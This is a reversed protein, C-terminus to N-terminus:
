IDAREEVKKENILNLEEDFLLVDFFKMKLKKIDDATLDSFYDSLFIVVSKKAVNRDVEKLLREVVQKHSTGGRGPIEALARKAKEIDNSDIEIIKQIEFDHIIVEVKAQFEKLISLIEIVFQRLTESSISGSSDIVVFARLKDKKKYKGPYLVRFDYMASKKRHIRTYTVIKTYDERLKKRLVARWNVKNKGTLKELIETFEGPITGRTIKALQKIKEVARKIREKAEEIEKAEKGALKEKENSNKESNNNNSNKDNKKESESDAVIDQEIVEKIKKIIKREIDDSNQQQNQQQQKNQQSDQQNDQQQNDQEQNNNQQSSQQNSQQQNQQQSNLKFQQSSQQFIEKVRKKLIEYIKEATEKEVIEVVKEIDMRFLTAINEITVAKETIRKSPNFKRLLNYNIVLDTAINWLLQNLNSLNRAREIHEFIIHLLEHYIIFQLTETNERRVIEENIYIAVGDTYAVNSYENSNEENKFTRVEIENLLIALLYNNNILKLKVAELKEKIRNMEM